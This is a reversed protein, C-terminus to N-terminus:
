EKIETGDPKVSFEHKKGNRSTYTAEYSTAAGRTVTEVLAIKGSAAKKVIAAKAAVPLADLTTEEEVEIVAGSADLDFDRHKGAVLTEVEFTTKGKETERTIGKIEAGKTQDQITKQVAPPLDKMAVQKEAAGAGLAIVILPVILKM